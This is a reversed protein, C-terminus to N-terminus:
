LTYWLNQLQKSKVSQFKFMKSTFVSKTGVNQAMERNPGYVSKAGIDTRSKEFDNKFDDKGDVQNRFFSIHCISHM